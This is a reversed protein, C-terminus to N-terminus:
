SADRAPLGSARAPTGDRDRDLEDLTAQDISEMAESWAEFTVDDHEVFGEDSPAILTTGRPPLPTM